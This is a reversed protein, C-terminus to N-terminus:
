SDRRGGVRRNGTDSVKGGMEIYKSSESRCFSRGRDTEEERREGTCRKMSLNVMLVVKEIVRQEKEFQQEDKGGKENGKRKKAENKYRSRISERGCARMAEFRCEVIEMGDWRRQMGVNDEDDKDGDEKSQEAGSQV